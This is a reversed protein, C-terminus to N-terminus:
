RELIIFAGFYNDFVQVLNEYDGAKMEDIVENPNFGLQKALRQAYGMLFFANGQPGNLDIVIENVPQKARIM